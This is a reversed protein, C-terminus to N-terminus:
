TKLVSIKDIVADELEVHFPGGFIVFGRDCLLSAVALGLSKAEFSSLLKRSCIVHELVILFVGFAIVEPHKQKFLRNLL